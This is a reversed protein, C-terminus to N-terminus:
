YYCVYTFIVANLPIRPTRTLPFINHKSRRILYVRTDPSCDLRDMTEVKAVGWGGRHICDVRFTVRIIYPATSFLISLKRSSARERDTVTENEREYDIFKTSLIEELKCIEKVNIDINMVIILRYNKTKRAIELCRCRMWWERIERDKRIMDAFKSEIDQKQFKKELFKKGRRPISYNNFTLDLDRRVDANLYPMINLKANIRVIVARTVHFYRMPNACACARTEHWRAM